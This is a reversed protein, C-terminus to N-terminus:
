DRSCYVDHDRLVGGVVFAVMLAGFAATILVDCIFEIIRPRSAVVLLGILAAVYILPLLRMKM